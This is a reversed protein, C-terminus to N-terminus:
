IQETSSPSPLGLYRTHEFSSPAILAPIELMQRVRQAWTLSQETVKSLIEEVLFAAMVLDESSPSCPLQLPVIKIRSFYPVWEQQKWVPRVADVIMRKEAVEIGFVRLHSM